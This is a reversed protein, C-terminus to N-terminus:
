NGSPTKFKQSAEATRADPGSWNSAEVRSREARREKGWDSAHRSHRSPNKPAVCAIQGYHLAASHHEGLGRWQNEGGASRGAHCQSHLPVHRVLAPEQPAPRASALVRRGRRRVLRSNYENHPGDPCTPERRASTKPLRTPAKMGSPPGREIPHSAPNGIAHSCQSYLMGKHTPATDCEWHWAPGSSTLTTATFPVRPRSTGVQQRGPSVHATAQRDAPLRLALPKGPAASTPSINPADHPRFNQWPGSARSAPQPSKAFAAASM